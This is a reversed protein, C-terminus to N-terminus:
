GPWGSSPSRSASPWSAPNGWRHTLRPVTIAVAFNVVSLPLFAVGAQLPTYQYVEQLFQTIFFWFGLM